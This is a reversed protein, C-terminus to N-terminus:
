FEFVTSCEERCSADTECRGLRIDSTVTCIGQDEFTMTREWQYGEPFSPKFYDSIDAPYKTFARNGYQFAATLIDYSFPLPAGETVKLDITQTGRFCLFPFWFADISTINLDIKVRM